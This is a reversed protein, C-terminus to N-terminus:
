FSYGLYIGLLVFTPFKSIKDMGDRVAKLDSNDDIENLVENDLKRDFVPANMRFWDIGFTFGSGWQWRNGIGLALGIVEVRLDDISTDTMDDLIDSGVKARFDDKYLGFIMNFSNGVYRRGLLSYRYETVSGVDFGLAGAGFHGRAMEAELSWKKNFMYTYSGTFKFPLWTSLFEYGVMLTSSSKERYYASNKVEQKIEKVEKVVPNTELAPEAELDPTTQPVPSTEPMQAFASVSIFFLIFLFKM